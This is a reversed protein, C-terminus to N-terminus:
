VKHLDISIEIVYLSVVRKHNEKNNEEHIILAAKKFYQEIILLGKLSM